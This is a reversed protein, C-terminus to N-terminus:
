NLIYPKIKYVRAGGQLDDDSDADIPISDTVYYCVSANVSQKSALAVHRNGLASVMPVSIGTRTSVCDRIAQCPFTIMHKFNKFYDYKHDMSRPDALYVCLYIGVESAKEVIEQWLKAREPVERAPAPTAGPAKAAMNLSLKLPQANAPATMRPAAPANEFIEKRINDFVVLWPEFHIQKGEAANKRAEDRKEIEFYVDELVSGADNTIQVRSGMVSRALEVTPTNMTYSYLVTKANQGELRSMSHLLSVMINSALGANEGLLLLAQNQQQSLAIAVGADKMCNQALPLHVGDIAQTHVAYSQPLEAASVRLADENGIEFTGTDTDYHSRIADSYKRFESYDYAVQVQMGKKGGDNSFLMSGYRPLNNVQSALARDLLACADEVNNMKFSCRGSLQAGIKESLRAEMRQTAVVFHIGYSRGVRTLAEFRNVLLDNLGRTGSSDMSYFANQCEDIIVIIRPMHAERISGNLVGRNYANIAKVSHKKFLVSRAAVEDELNRFIADADEMDNKVSLQAVHPIPTKNNRFVDFSTGDKFDLLYFQLADPAYKMAGNYIMSFLLSSKGSGTTGQVMYGILGKGDCDFDMSFPLGDKRGVPIKITSGIESNATFQTGFGVEEYRPSTVSAKIYNKLMNHAIAQADDKDLLASLKLRRNQGDVFSHNKAVIVYDFVGSNAFIKEWDHPAATDIELVCQMGCRNEKARQITPILEQRLTNDYNQTRDDHEDYVVRLYKTSDERILDYINYDKNGRVRKKEVLLKSTDQIAEFWLKLRQQTALAPDNEVLSYKIGDSSGELGNMVNMVHSNRQESALSLRAMGPKNATLLSLTVSSMIRSKEDSSFSDDSFIVAVNEDGRLTLTGSGDAYEGFIFDGDREFADDGALDIFPSGMEVNCHEITKIVKSEAEDYRDASPFYTEGLRVGITRKGGVNELTFFGDGSYTFCDSNNKAIEITELWAAATEAERGTHPENRTLAKAHELDSKAVVIINHVGFTGCGRDFEFLKNMLEFAAVGAESSFGFYTYLHHDLEDGEIMRFQNAKAVAFEKQVMGTIEQHSSVEAACLNERLKTAIDRDKINKIAASLKANIYVFDGATTQTLDACHFSLAGLPCESIIKLIMQHVAISIQQLAANRTARDASVDDYEIYINSKRSLERSNIPFIYPVSLSTRQNGLEPYIESLVEAEHEDISIGATGLKIGSSLQTPFRFGKQFLSGAEDLLKQHARLDERSMGLLMRLEDRSEVIGTEINDLARERGKTVTQELGNYSFLNKGCQEFFACLTKYAIHFSRIPEEETGGGNEIKQALDNFLRLTDEIQKVDTMTPAQPVSYNNMSKGLLKAIRNYCDDCQHQLEKLKVDARRAEQLWQLEAALIERKEDAYRKYRVYDRQIQPIRDLTELYKDFSINFSM